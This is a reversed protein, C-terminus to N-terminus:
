FYSLSKRAASHNSFARRPTSVDAPEGRHASGLTRTTHRTEKSTRTPTQVAVTFMLTWRRQRQTHPQWVHSVSDCLAACTAALSLTPSHSAQTCHRPQELTWVTLKWGTICPLAHKGNGYTHKRHGQAAPATTTHLRLQTGDRRAWRGNAKQTGGGRRKRVGRGAVRMRAGRIRWEEPTKDRINKWKTHWRSLRSELSHM